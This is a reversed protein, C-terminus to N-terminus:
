PQGGGGEPWLAGAVHFVVPDSAHTWEASQLVVGALDPLARLREVCDAAASYSGARGQLSLGEQPSLAIREVRCHGAFADAVEELLPSFRRGEPLVADLAALRARLQSTEQRLAQWREVEAALASLEAEASSLDARAAREAQRLPVAAGLSLVLLLALLPAIAAHLRLARLERSPLRPRLLNIRTM